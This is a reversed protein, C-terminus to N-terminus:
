LPSRVRAALSGRWRGTTWAAGALWLPIRRQRVAQPLDALGSLLSRIERRFRNRPIPAHRFRSYLQAYSRGYGHRQKMVGKMTDRLRYDIIADPVFGISHGAEQARWAFDVEEHGGVYTEDFGGLADLVAKRVGMNSGIAYPLYKMATPLADMAPHWSLAQVTTSNIRTVDNVGGVIDYSDLAETMAQVWGPRVVDDADCYLVRDGSAEATGANRAYSVGAGAFARVVRLPLRDMAARAIEETADTSQNNVVLVEFPRDVKQTALASLQDGLTAAGNHTPIVVSTIVATSSRGAVGMVDDQM